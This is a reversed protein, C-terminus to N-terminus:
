CKWLDPPGSLFLPGCSIAQRQLTDRQIALLPRSEDGVFFSMLGPIVPRVEVTVVIRWAELPYDMMQQWRDDGPDIDRLPNGECILDFSGNGDADEDSRGPLPFNPFAIWVKVDPWRYLYGDADDARPPPVQATARPDRDLCNTLEDNPDGDMDGELDDVIDDGDLDTWERHLPFNYGWDSCSDGVIWRNSPCLRRYVEARGVQILQDSLVLDIFAEKREDQPTAPDDAPLSSLADHEQIRLVAADAATQAVSSAQTVSLTFFVLFILLLVPLTLILTSIVQGEEDQRSGEDGWIESYQQADIYSLNAQLM